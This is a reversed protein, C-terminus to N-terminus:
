ELLKLMRMSLKNRQSVYTIGDIAKQATTLDKNEISHNAIAILYENKQSVYTIQLAFDVALDYRNMKIYKGAGAIAAENKQSVYSISKIASLKSKAHQTIQSDQNQNKAIINEKTKETENGILGQLIESIGHKLIASVKKREAAKNNSDSSIKYTLVKRGRLDFPLSEVSGYEENLVLIIKNWNLKSIAYGLEILVNPNPTLRSNNDQGNIISVDCIFVSSNDIKEFISASIDPSGTLGATDRDLFPILLFSDDSTIENIAKDIANNIFGRNTNNPLDSQWSYFIRKKM